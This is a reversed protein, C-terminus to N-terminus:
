KQFGPTNDSNQNLHRRALDHVSRISDDCTPVRHFYHRRVRNKESKWVRGCVRSTSCYAPELKCPGPYKGALKKIERQTERYIDPVFIACGTLWTIDNSSFYSHPSCIISYTSPFPDVRHRQGVMGATRSRIMLCGGTETLCSWPEDPSHFEITM